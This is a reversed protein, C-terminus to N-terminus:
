IAHRLLKMEAAKVSFTAGCPEMAVKASADVDEEFRMSNSEGDFWDVDQDFMEKVGALGGERAALM